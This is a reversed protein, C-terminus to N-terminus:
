RRMHSAWLCTTLSATGRGTSSLVTSPENDKPLASRGTSHRETSGCFVEHHGSHRPPVLSTSNPRWCNGPPRSDASHAARAGPSCRINGGRCPVGAAPGRGAPLAATHLLRAVRLQGLLLPHVAAAVAQGQRGAHRPRQHGDLQLGPSPGVEGDAGAAWAAGRELKSSM